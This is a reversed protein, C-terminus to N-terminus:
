LSRHKLKHLMKQFKTSSTYSKNDLIVDTWKKVRRLEDVNRPSDVWKSLLADVQAVTWLEDLDLERKKIIELILKWGDDEYRNAVAIVPHRRTKGFVGKGKRRTYKKAM